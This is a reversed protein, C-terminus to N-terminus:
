NTATPLYVPPNKEWNQLLISMGSPPKKSIRFDEGIEKKLGPSSKKWGIENDLYLDIFQKFLRTPSGDCLFKM